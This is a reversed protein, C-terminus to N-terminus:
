FSNFGNKKQILQTRYSIFHLVLQDLTNIILVLQMDILISKLTFSYFGTNIYYYFIKKKSTYYSNAIFYIQKTHYLLLTRLTRLSYFLYTNCSSKRTKPVILITQVTMRYYDRRRILFQISYM